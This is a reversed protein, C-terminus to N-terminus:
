YCHTFTAKDDPKKTMRFFLVFRIQNKYIANHQSQELSFCLSKSFSISIVHTCNPRILTTGITFFSNKEVTRLYFVYVYFFMFCIELLFQSVSSVHLNRSPESNTRYRTFSRLIRPVVETNRSDSKYLIALILSLM